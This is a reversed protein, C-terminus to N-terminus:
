NNTAIIRMPKGDSCLSLRYSDIIVASIVIIALIVAIALIFQNGTLVVCHGRGGEAGVGDAGAKRTRVQLGSKDSDPSANPKLGDNGLRLGGRGEGAAGPGRPM